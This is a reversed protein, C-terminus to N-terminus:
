NFNSSTTVGFCRRASVRCVIVDYDVDDDAVDDNDNDLCRIEVLIVFINRRKRRSKFISDVFNLSSTFPPPSNLRNFHNRKARCCVHENSAKSNKM